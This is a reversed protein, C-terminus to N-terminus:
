NLAATRVPRFNPKGAGEWFTGMKRSEFLIKQSLIITFPGLMCLVWVGARDSQSGGDRLQKTVDLSSMIGLTIWGCLFM